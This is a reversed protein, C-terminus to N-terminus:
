RFLMTSGYYAPPAAPQTVSGSTSACPPLQPVEPAPVLDTEVHGTALDVTIRDASVEARKGNRDWTLKASGEATLGTPGNRTVVNGSLRFTAKGTGGPVKSCEDASCIYVQADATVRLMGVRAVPITLSDCMGQAGDASQIMVKGQSASLAWGSGVASSPRPMPPCTPPVAQQAVAAGVTLLAALTGCFIRQIMTEEPFPYLFALSVEAL